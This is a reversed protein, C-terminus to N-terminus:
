LGPAPCNGPLDAWGLLLLHLASHVGPSNTSGSNNSSSGLSLGETALDTLGRTGKFARRAQDLLMEERWRWHPCLEQHCHPQLRGPPVAPLTVGAFSQHPCPFPNWVGCEISHLHTGENKRPSPHSHGPLSLSLLTPLHIQWKLGPLPSPSSAPEWSPKGQRIM